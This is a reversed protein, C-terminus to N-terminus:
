LAKQLKCFSYFVLDSKDYLDSRLTDDTVGSYRFKCCYLSKMCCLNYLLTSCHVQIRSYVSTVSIQLPYLVAFDRYRNNHPCVTSPSHTMASLVVSEIKIAMVAERLGPWIDQSVFCWDCSSENTGNRQRKLRIVCFVIERKIKVSNPYALTWLKTNM